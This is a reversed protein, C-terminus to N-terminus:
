LHQWAQLQSFAFTATTARTLPTPGGTIVTDGPTMDIIWTLTAPTADINGAADLARVAFTHTGEALGAYAQPSDCATFIASDLSCAFTTGAKPSFFAFSAEGSNSVAAPSSTLLTDPETTDMTWEYAAANPDVNGALDIAHVTFTHSGDPLNSYSLPSACATAAVQDLSCRFTGAENSSFVFNATTQNTLLAPGSNISTTPPTTDITWSVTAPKDDVNGAQDIARVNFVHHGDALANLNTPSTCATFAGADSRCEFTTNGENSSFAFSATSSNNLNAPGNTVITDPATWDIQIPGFSVASTNGAVDIATDEISAVIGEANVVVDAPCTAIGSLGDSCTFHVTVIQNTWTGALYPTHDAKSASASIAPATKDVKVTFSANGTNGAGDHCIATLTLTGEGSSTASSTCNAADIGSGGANDTWHWNVTVDSNNWGAANASPSQAPSATPAITDVYAYSHQYGASIAVAGYLNVVQVPTRSHPIQGYGLQGASNNGWAWVTHDNKLAMSHPGLGSAIAIAGSLGSVQVPTTSNTLTGNGLEGYANYGWAWVTGDTKLALSHLDGGAVASVSNLGSVQVPLSSNTQTGNGLAGYANYGWARVTGDSLAALSHDQGM